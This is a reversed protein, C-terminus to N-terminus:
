KFKAVAKNAMYSHMNGWRLVIMGGRDVTISGSQKGSEISVEKPAVLESVSEKTPVPGEAIVDTGRAEAICSGFKTGVLAYGKHWHGEKMLAGCGELAEWADQSLEEAGTGKVAVLIMARKPLAALDTVLETNSESKSPDYAKSSIVKRTEGDVAVINVGTSATYEIQKGDVWFEAADGNDAGASRVKAPVEEIDKPDIDTWIGDVAFVVESGSFKTAMKSFFGGYGGSSKGM